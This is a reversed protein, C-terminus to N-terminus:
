KPQFVFEVTETSDDKAAEFKWKRVADLAANVLVPNGGLVRADKPTGGPSIVVIV